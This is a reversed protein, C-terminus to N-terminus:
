EDLYREALRREARRLTEATASKTLREADAVDAVSAERPVAYYGADLATSLVREQKASLPEPRSTRSHVVEVEYERVHEDLANHLASLRESTTRVRFRLTTGDVAAPPDLAVRAASLAALPACPVSIHVEERDEGGALVGGVGLGHAHDGESGGHDDRRAADVLREAADAADAGTLRVLLPVSDVVGGSGEDRDCEATELDPESESDSAPRSGSEHCGVPHAPAIGVIEVAGAAHEAGVVLPHDPPLSASLTAEPM